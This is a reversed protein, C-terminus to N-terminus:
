KGANAELKVGYLTALAHACRIALAGRRGVIEDYKERSPHVVLPKVFQEVDEPNMKSASFRKWLVEEGLKVVICGEGLEGSDVIEFASGRPGLDTEFRDELQLVEAERAKRAKERLKEREEKRKRLEDVDVKENQESM